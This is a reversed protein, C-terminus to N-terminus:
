QVFDARAYTRHFALVFFRGLRYSLRLKGWLPEVASETGIKRAEVSLTLNRICHTTSVTLNCSNDVTAVISKRNFRFTKDWRCWVNIM